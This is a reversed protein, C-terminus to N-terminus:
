NNITRWYIIQVNFIIRWPVCSKRSFGWYEEDPSFNLINASDQYMWLDDCFSKEWAIWYCIFRHNVNNAHRTPSLPPWQSETHCPAPTVDGPDCDTMLLCWWTSLGTRMTLSTPLLMFLTQLREETWGSNYVDEGDHVKVSIYCKVQHLSTQRWVVRGDRGARRHLRPGTERPLRGVKAQRAEPGLGAQTQDGRAPLVLLLALGRLSGPRGSDM